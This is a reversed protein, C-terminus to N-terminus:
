RLGNSITSIGRPSRRWSRRHSLPSPTWRTSPWGRSPSMSRPAPASTWGPDVPRGSARTIAAGRRHSQGRRVVVVGGRKDFRYLKGDKITPEWPDLDEAWGSFEPQKDYHGYLLDVDDSDGPIEAAQMAVYARGNVQDQGLSELYVLELAEGGSAVQRWGDSTPAAYRFGGITYGDSPAVYKTQVQAAAPAAVLLALATLAFGRFRSM